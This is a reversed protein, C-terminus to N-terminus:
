VRRRILSLNQSALEVFSDHPGTIVVETESEQISRSEPNYVNVVYGKGQHFLAVAGKLVENILEDSDIMKIFQSRELLKTVESEKATGFPITIESQFEDSGTLHEFYVMQLKIDPMAGYVIDACDKFEDLTRELSPAVNQKSLEEEQKNSQDSQNM